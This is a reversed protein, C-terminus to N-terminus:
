AEDIGLPIDLNLKFTRHLGSHEGNCNALVGGATM